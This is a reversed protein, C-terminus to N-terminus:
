SPPTTQLAFPTLQAEPDSHQEPTQREPTQPVQLTSPRSQVAAASQQEPTQLAPRQMGGWVQTLSSPVQEPVASHQTPSLQTMAAPCAFPVQWGPELQEAEPCDHEAVCAQQWPRRQALTAVLAVQM